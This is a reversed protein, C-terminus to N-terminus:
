NELTQQMNLMMNRLFNNKNLRLHRVIYTNSQLQYFIIIFINVFIVFLVYEFNCNRKGKKM